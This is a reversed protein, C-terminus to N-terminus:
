ESASIKNVEIITKWRAAEEAMMKALEEPNRIEINFGLATVQTQLEPDKGVSAFADHLYKVYETPTQSPAM